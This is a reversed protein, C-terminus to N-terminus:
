KNKLYGEILIDNGINWSCVDNLEIFKNYSLNKLEAVASLGNGFFKPAIFCLIKDATRERLFASFVSAGGEVLVSNIGLAGLRKLIKRTSISGDRLAPLEIITIGKKMFIKKKKLSRASSRESIFLILNAGRFVAADPHLSFTGDIVVRVPNRGKVDRVTLKPNDLRVTRAGILVTDYQSRLTHVLTRSKDNTIWKSQGKVDAIFGDLTQAIKLTVFPLGTTIYKSFAENLRSCEDHLIGVDVKIDANRLQRVGNGAVRPNPDLMGIVVRSIRKRIILDTCPPTKGFYNCPELNVYLTAGRVPSKASRFAHVEAHPGGFIQHYGHGIIKGNKVIVCGVMPNPSVSGAGRQALSLCELMFTADIEVQKKKM